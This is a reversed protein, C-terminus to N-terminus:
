LWGKPCRDWVERGYNRAETFLRHSLLITQSFLRNAPLSLRGAKNSGWEVGVSTNLLYKQALVEFNWSSYMITNVDLLGWTEHLCPKTRVWEISARCWVFPCPQCLPLSPFLPTADPTPLQPPGNQLPPMWGQILILLRAWCIFTGQSWSLRYSVATQIGQESCTSKKNTMKVIDPCM